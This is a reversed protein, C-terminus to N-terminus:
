LENQFIGCQVAVSCIKPTKKHSYCRGRRWNCRAPHRFTLRREGAEYTYADLSGGRYIDVLANYAQFHYIADFGAAILGDQREYGEAVFYVDGLGRARGIIYRWFEDPVYYAMDCRFGDVGQEQWFQIIRDIM